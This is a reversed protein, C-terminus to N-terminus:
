KVKKEKFLVRKRIKADYKLLELKEEGTRTTIYFTGTDATSVLLVAKNKAKAM